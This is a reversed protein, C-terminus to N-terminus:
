DPLQRALQELETVADEIPSVGALMGLDLAVSRVNIERSPTVCLRKRLEERAALAMPRYRINFESRALESRQQTMETHKDWAAQMEVESSGRRIGWNDTDRKLHLNHEFTRMQSGLEAVTQKLDHNTVHHLNRLTPSIQNQPEPKDGREIALILDDIKTRQDLSEREKKYSDYAIAGWSLLGCGLGVLALIWFNPDEVTMRRDALGIWGAAGSGIIPALTRLGFAHRLFTATRGVSCPM